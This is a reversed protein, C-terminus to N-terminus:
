FEEPSPATNSWDYNYVQAQALPVNEAATFGTGPLGTDKRVVISTLAPKEHLICYAQIPELLQGLGPTFVGILKALEDYCLVIRKTACLVLIPWIQVAREKVTM